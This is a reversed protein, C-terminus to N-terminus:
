SEKHIVKFYHDFIDKINQLVWAEDDEDNLVSIEAQETLWKSFKGIKNDVTDIEPELKVPEYKYQKPLYVEEIDEKTSMLIM